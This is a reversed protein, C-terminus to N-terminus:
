TGKSFQQENLNKAQLRALLSKVDMRPASSPVPGELKPPSGHGLAADNWESYGHPTNASIGHDRTVSPHAGLNRVVDPVDSYSVHEGPLTRSFLGAETRVTNRALDYAVPAGPDYPGRRAQFNWGTPHVVGPPSIVIRHAGNNVPVHIQGDRGLQHPMGKATLAAVVGATHASM